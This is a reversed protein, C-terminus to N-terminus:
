QPKRISSYLHFIKPAYTKNSIGHLLIGNCKSDYSSYFCLHFCGWEITVLLVKLDLAKIASTSNDTKLHSTINM